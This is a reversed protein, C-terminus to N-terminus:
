ENRLAAAPDIRTARLAPWFCAQLGVILLVVAVLSFSLPDFPSVRWIQQRLLQTTALSGVLGIAAGIGLLKAGRKMIIAIVNRFDAGLAIRVGIERTQLSV